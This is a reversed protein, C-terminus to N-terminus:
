KSGGFLHRIIGIGLSLACAPWYGIPTVATIAAVGYNWAIYVVAGGVFFSIALLLPILIVALIGVAVADDSKSM